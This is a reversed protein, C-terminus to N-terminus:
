VEINFFCAALMSLLMIQFNLNTSNKLIFIRHILCYPIHINDTEGSLVALHPPHHLEVWLNNHVAAPSCHHKLLVCFRTIPCNRCKQTALVGLVPANQSLAGSDQTDFRRLENPLLLIQYNEKGGM